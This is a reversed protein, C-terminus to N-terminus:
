TSEKFHLILVVFLLHLVHMLLNCLGLLFETVIGFLEFAILSKLLKTFSSVANDIFAFINNSTLKHRELFNSQFFLIVSNGGSCDAFNGEKFSNLMGIDNLSNSKM